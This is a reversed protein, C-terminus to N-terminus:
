RELFNNSYSYQNTNTDYEYECKRGNQKGPAHDTERENTQEVDFFYPVICHQM